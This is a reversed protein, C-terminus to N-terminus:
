QNATAAKIFALVLPHPAGERSSLQPLFLTAAYFPHGSLEIIRANGDEDFGTITLNGTRIAPGYAENLGYNCTFQEIVTAQGYARHAMSGTEVKVAQSVGALSCSLKNIVLASAKPDAEEHTAGPIGAM